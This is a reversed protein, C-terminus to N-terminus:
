RTQLYTERREPSLKMVAAEYELPKTNLLRDLRAFEGDEVGGGDAAGLDAVTPPILAERTRRRPKDGKAAVPWVGGRQEFISLALDLQAEMSLGDGLDGGTVTLVVANFAALADQPITKPDINQAGFWNACASNWAAETRKVFNTEEIEDSRKKLDLDAKKEELLARKERWDAFSIDGEEVQEDLIAMDAKVTRLTEADAKTFQPVYAEPAPTEEAPAPDDKKAPPQEAEPEDGKGDEGEEENEGDGEEPDVEGPDLDGEPDDDLAELAEIEEPSLQAKDEETLAM